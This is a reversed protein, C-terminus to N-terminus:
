AVFECTREIQILLFSVSMVEERIPGAELYCASRGHCPKERKEWTLHSAFSQGRLTQVVVAVPETRPNHRIGVATHVHAKPNAFMQVLEAM